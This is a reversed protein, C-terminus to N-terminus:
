RSSECFGREQNRFKHVYPLSGMSWNACSRCVSGDGRPNTTGHKDLNPM